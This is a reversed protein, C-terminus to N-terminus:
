QPVPLKPKTPWGSGNKIGHSQDLVHAKQKPLNRKGFGTEDELSEGTLVSQNRQHRPPGLARIRSPATQQFRNQMQLKEKRFKRAAIQASQTFDAQHPIKGGHALIRDFLPQGPNEAFYQQTIRGTFRIRCLEMIQKQGGLFFQFEGRSFSGNQLRLEAREKQTIAADGAKLRLETNADAAALRN